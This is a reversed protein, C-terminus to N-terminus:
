EQNLVEEVIALIKEMVAARDTNIGTVVKVVKSEPTPVAAKLIPPDAAMFGHPEYFKHSPDVTFTVDYQESQSVVDANLAVYATFVDAFHIRPLPMAAHWHIWDQKVALAWASKENVRTALLQNWQAEDIQIALQEVMGSSVINVDAGSQFVAQSAAPSIGSNYGARKVSGDPNSFWGGMHYISIYDKADPYKSLLAAINHLPGIAVITLKQRQQFAARAACYMAEVASQFGSPISECGISDGQTEVSTMGKPLKEVPLPKLLDKYAVGQNAYMQPYGHEPDATPLGFKKKPWAPNLELFKANDNAPSGTGVYVPVDAGCHELALRAIQAKQAPDNNVTSIGLLRVNPDKVILNLAFLDDIDGGIDTDLWFPRRMPAPPENARKTLPIFFSLAEQFQLALVLCLAASLFLLRSM